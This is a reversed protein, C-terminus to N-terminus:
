RAEGDATLAFAMAIGVLPWVLYSPQFVRGLFVLMFISV